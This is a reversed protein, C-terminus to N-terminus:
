AEDGFTKKKKFYSAVFSIILVAFVMGIMLWQAVSSTFYAYFVSSLALVTGYKLICGLVIWKLACPLKWSEVGSIFAGSYPIMPAIRNVLLMREDSVVLFDVYKEMITKLKKPLGFHEVVSYLATNGLIEAVIATCLLVLAFSPTPNYSFGLIIFIEPLFPFVTADIFFALFVVAVVGVMGYPGFIDFMIATLDM